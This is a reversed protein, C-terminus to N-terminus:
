GARKEAVGTAARPIPKRRNLVADWFDFYRQADGKSSLAILGCIEALMGHFSLQGTSGQLKACLRDAEGTFRSDFTLRAHNKFRNFMESFWRDAIVQRQAVPYYPFADSNRVLM